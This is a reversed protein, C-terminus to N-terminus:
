KVKKEQKEQLESLWDVTLSLKGQLLNLDHELKRVFEVTLVEQGNVWTKKDVDIVMWRKQYRIEFELKWIEQQLTGRLNTLFEQQTM